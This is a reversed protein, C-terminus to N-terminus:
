SSFRAALSNTALPGKYFQGGATPDFDLADWADKVYMALM